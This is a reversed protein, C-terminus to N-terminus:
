GQQRHYKLQEEQKRRCPDQSDPHHQYVTASDLCQPGRTDSSTGDISSDRGSSAHLIYLPSTRSEFSFSLWVGCDVGGSCSM